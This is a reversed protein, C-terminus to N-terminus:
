GDISVVPRALLKQDINALAYAIAEDMTMAARGYTAYAAGRL